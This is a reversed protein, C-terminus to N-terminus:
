ETQTDAVASSSSLHPERKRLYRLGRKAMDERSSFASSGVASQEVGPQSLAPVIAQGVHM